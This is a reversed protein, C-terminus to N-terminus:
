HSFPQAIWLDLSGLAGACAHVHCPAQGASAASGPGSDSVSYRAPARDRGAQVTTAAPGPRPRAGQPRGQSKDEHIKVGKMRGM